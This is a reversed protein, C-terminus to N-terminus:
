NGKCNGCCSPRNETKCSCGKESYCGCHSQATCKCDRCACTPNRQAQGSATQQSVAQQSFLLGTSALSFSVVMLTFLKM